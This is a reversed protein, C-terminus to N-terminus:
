ELFERLTIYHCSIASLGPPLGAGAGAAGDIDIASIMTAATRARMMKETRPVKYEAVAVSAATPNKVETSLKTFNTDVTMEIAAIMMTM